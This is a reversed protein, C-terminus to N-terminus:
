SPYAILVLGSGGNGADPQPAPGGPAREMGGGGSGTNQLAATGNAFHRSGNGAGAFPSSGVSPSGVGGVGSTHGSDPGYAGGGGGGAVWYKGSNDINTWGPNHTSTNTPGPAGFSQAPDRFTTPLQMGLGGDGAASDVAAQGAGGAGGGGGNDGSPYGAGGGHGWGNTPTDATADKPSATFSTGTNSAVSGGYSSGGSSAGPGGGVTPQGGPDQWTAGYGGGPSTIPSGFYSPTGAAPLLVGKAGGAGVQIAITQPTSIPTSGKRYAGAGGGGGYYSNVGPASPGGGAGGGGVVVYEVTENFTAPAVFNGSSTFAHITKGNYYSIAGGSAKAVDSQSSDIQYRVVVIGSGGNKGSSDPSGYAGGGGGGGTAYAGATGAGTASGTGGGGAGGASTGSPTQWGTNGSGGGGGAFWGNGSPGPTGIPSATPPGAIAVQVGIGGPAGGPGPGPTGAAGAGGGGGGYYQSSYGPANGGSNGEPKSDINGGSNGSGGTQNGPANGSGGGSGGTNATQPTLGGGAGGATATIGNPSSPPGFYSDVGNSGPGQGPGPEGAGGGGVTVVYSTPGATVSFPTSITLPSPTANVVGPLNTRLGGAGGGGSQGGGGAGGGGAVVLYEVTSAIEGLDTVDFTGSSTFVHARYYTGSSEYDSIIGGTATLGPTSVPASNVADTGTRSFFDFYSAYPNNTKIPAM